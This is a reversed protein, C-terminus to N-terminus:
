EPEPQISPLIAKGKKTLICGFYPQRQNGPIDAMPECVKVLGDAECQRLLVAEKYGWIDGGHELQRLVGLHDETLNV